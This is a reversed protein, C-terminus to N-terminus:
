NKAEQRKKKQDAWFENVAKIQVATLPLAAYEKNEAAFIVEAQRTKEAETANQFSQLRKAYAFHLKMVKDAQDSSIQAKEMLIPKIKEKKYEIKGADTAKADQAVASTAFIGTFLAFLLFLKKM